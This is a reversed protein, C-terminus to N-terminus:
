AYGLIFNVSYAYFTHSEYWTFTDRLLSCAGSRGHISGSLAGLGLYSTYIKSVIPLLLSLLLAAFGAVICM